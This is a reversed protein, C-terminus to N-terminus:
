RRSSEALREAYRVDALKTVKFADPHGEVVRVRGGYHEILQADDTGAFGDAAARVHADRLRDTWFAQPTQINWVEERELTEVVVADRVVKVTEQMQLGPVVADSGELAEAVAAFISPPAFPRAADHIVVRPATVHELGLRVSEQRTAGGTVIRAEPDLTDAAADKWGEPVVVVVDDIGANFIAELSWTIMPRGALELFQKPTGAGVRM